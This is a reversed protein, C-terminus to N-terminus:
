MVLCALSHFIEKHFTCPPKVDAAMNTPFDCEVFCTSTDLQIGVCQMACVSVILSKSQKVSAYVAGRDM